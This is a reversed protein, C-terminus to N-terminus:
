MNDFEEKYEALQTELEQIIVKLLRLNGGYRSFEGRAGSGDKYESITLNYLGDHYKNDKRNFGVEAELALDKLNELGQETTKITKLLIEGEKLQEETM